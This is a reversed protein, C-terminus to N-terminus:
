AYNFSISIRASRATGRTVEHRLWSEWLMVMGAAPKVYVFSRNAAAASEKRPPAAMMLPLRPDELKLPGSGAPVTVYYTGSIASHPHIHGSHVGDPDLINVWMSDLKLRRRSLDLELLRAFSAAHADLRDQLTKFPPSRWPLDNISAYSTYGPYQNRRSWRGGATDESQLSLCARRLEANLAKAAGKPLSARYLKTVFLNTIPM